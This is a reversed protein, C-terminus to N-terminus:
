SNRLEGCFRPLLHPPKSCPLSDPERPRPINCLKLVLLSFSWRTGGPLWLESGGPTGEKWQRWPLFPRHHSCSICGTGRQDTKVSSPRGVPERKYFFFFFVAEKFYPSGMGCVVTGGNISFSVSIAGTERHTQPHLPRIGTHMHTHVHRPRTHAKEGVWWLGQHNDKACPRPFQPLSPPHPLRRPTLLSPRPCRWTDPDWPPPARSGM